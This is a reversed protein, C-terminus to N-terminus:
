KLLFLNFVKFYIDEKSVDISCIKAIIKILFNSLSERMAKMGNQKIKIQAV